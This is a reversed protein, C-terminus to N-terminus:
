QKFFAPINDGFGESDEGSKKKKKAKPPQKKTPKESEYPKNSKEKKAKYKRNEKRKKPSNKPKDSTKEKKPEKEKVAEKKAQAEKAAEQDIAGIFPTDKIAKTPKPAEKTKQAKQPKKDEKPLPKKTSGKKASEKQLEAKPQVILGIFGTSGTDKNKTNGKSGKPKNDRNKGRKKKKIKHADKGLIVGKGIQIDPAEEKQEQPAKDKLSLTNDAKVITVKKGTMKEIAEVYEADYRCILTFARGIEGARGTRGIRHVYDEAQHPVDFNFVHSLGKVDLGRAAVDSCVLLDIEGEKFAKLTRTREPQSRDGHMAAVNYGDKHLVKELADVDKKRNCFILANNVKENKIIKRLTDIKGRPSSEIFAQTVTSATTAPPAVRVEAPDKLFQSAIRRVENPFTASFLLTQRRPPLRKVILEIDPIFGMDLMRDCEDIVLIKIDTLLINGREFLDILRGPTAILVDVGKKLKEIQENISTGGVLLAQSMKHYKGYTDFNEAVQAALERTPALILSRPMMARARGRSLIDIMPLTFSATKGTGTQASGLVDQGQLIYPIAAAQIPTPSIYGCDSVANLIDQNLGLSEFNTALTM